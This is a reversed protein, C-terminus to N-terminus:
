FDVITRMELQTELLSITNAFTQKITTQGKYHPISIHFDYWQFPITACKLAWLSIRTWLCQKGLFPFYDEARYCNPRYCIKNITYCTWTWFPFYNIKILQHEAPYIQSAMQEFTLNFLLCQRKQLFSGKDSKRNTLFYSPLTFVLTKLIICNPKMRVFTFQEARWFKTRIANDLMSLGPSDACICM